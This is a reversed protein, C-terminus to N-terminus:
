RVSEYHDEEEIDYIDFFNTNTAPENNARCSASNLLENKIRRNANYSLEKVMRRRSFYLFIITLVMVVIILAMVDISMKEATCDAIEPIPMPKWVCGVGSVQDGGIPLKKVEIGSANLRDLLTLLTKCPWANDLIGITHLNPFRTSVDNLELATLANGDLNLEHLEKGNPLFANFDLLELNNHSIDLSRLVTKAPFTSSNVTRLGSQKLYLHKLDVFPHLSDANIDNLQNHSLDLVELSHALKYVADHLQSLLRKISTLNNNSMYLQKLKELGGISTLVTIHNNSLDLTELDFVGDLRVADIDNRSADLARLNEMRQIRMIKLANNSLDLSVLKGFDVSVTTLNNNNLKLHLLYTLQAFANKDISAIANFSLDLQTLTDLYQFYSTKISSILNSNLNLRRIQSDKFITSNLATIMNHSLNLYALILNNCRLSCNVTSMENNSLVLAITRISDSNFIKDIENPTLTIVCVKEAGSSTLNGKYHSSSLGIAETRSRTECEENNLVEYFISRFPAITTTGDDFGTYLYCDDKVAFITSETLSTTVLIALCM